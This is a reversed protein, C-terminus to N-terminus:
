QSSVLHWKDCETDFHKLHHRNTHRDVFIDQRLGLPINRNCHM